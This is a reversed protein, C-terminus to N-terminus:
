DMEVYPTRIGNSKENDEAIMSSTSNLEADGHEKADRDGLTEPMFLGLIVIPVISLVLSGTLSAVHGYQEVVHQGLFNSLTAGMGFM